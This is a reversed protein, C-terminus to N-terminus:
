GIEERNAKDEVASRNALEGRPVRFYVWFFLAGAATVSAGTLFLSPYGLATLIYGGGLSIASMSLGLAMNSAGNLVARWGPSVLEMRYLVFSPRWVSALAMVGVYGLGAAGWHPILALPLLSLAIGLSAWFFTRFNGWRAILLPTALAVPVALLQSVAALTGIQHTPAGLSADLYVNFFTRAAGEGAAQLLQVLALLAILVYPASGAKSVTEQTNTEGAERTALLAPVGPIFLVAAILLSYRYPAPHDLPVRLTSAFLGPLLGGILSGAFGALPWLAVQMSFVHSRETPSAASMLYVDANVIYLAAGLWALSYTVLLWGGRLTTPISEALPPLALGAVVLSLGVIMMLRIGWLRGLAGAPLSFLAYALAGVAGILGVFEPGYGLRLLYLNFLVVYIGMWCFGVLVATVLYLRVDRSFLRLAKLYTTAM